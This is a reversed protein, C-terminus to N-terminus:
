RACVAGKMTSMGDTTEHIHAWHPTMWQALQDENPVSPFHLTDMPGHMMQPIEWSGASRAVSWEGWCNNLTYPTKQLPSDTRYEVVSSSEPGRRIQSRFYGVCRRLRRPQSPPHTAMLFNGKKLLCYRMPSLYPRRHSVGINSTGYSVVKTRRRIRQSVQGHMCTSRNKGGPHTPQTQRWVAITDHRHNYISGMPNRSCRAPNERHCRGESNERNRPVSVIGKDAALTTM